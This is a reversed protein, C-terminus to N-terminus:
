VTFGVEDKAVTYELLRRLCETRWAQHNVILARLCSMGVQRLLKNEDDCLVSVTDMQTHTYTHIYMYTISSLRRLYLMGCFSIKTTVYFECRTWRHTFFINMCVRSQRHAGTLAVHGTAAYYIKTTVDCPGRTWRHRHKYVHIHNVILVRLCM